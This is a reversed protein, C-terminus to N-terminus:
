ELCLFPGYGLDLHCRIIFKCMGMEVGCESYQGEGNGLSHHLFGTVNEILTYDPRYYEVFSM